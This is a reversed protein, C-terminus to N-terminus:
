ILQSEASFCSRDRISSTSYDRVKSKEYKILTDHVLEKNKNIRKFYFLQNFSYRTIIIKELLYFCCARAIAAFSKVFFFLGAVM